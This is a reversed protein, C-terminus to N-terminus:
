QLYETSRLVGHAVVHTSLKQATTLVQKAGTDVSRRHNLHRATPAARLSRTAAAANPTPRDQAEGLRYERRLPADRKRSNRYAQYCGRLTPRQLAGAAASGVVLRVCVVRASPWTCEWPSAGRRRKVWVMGVGLVMEGEEKWQRTDRWRLRWLTDGPPLMVTAGAAGACAGAACGLRHHQGDTHRRAARQKAHQEVVVSCVAVVVM